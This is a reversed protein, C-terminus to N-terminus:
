KDGSRGMHAGSGVCVLAIVGTVPVASQPMFEFLFNAGCVIFLIVGMTILVLSIKTKM